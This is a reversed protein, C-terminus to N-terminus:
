GGTPPAAVAGAGAGERSDRLEVSLATAGAAALPRALVALLPAALVRLLVGGSGGHIADAFPDIAASLALEALLLPAFFAILLGFVPWRRGRTLEASRGLAQAPTLTEIVQVPAAVSWSALLTFGPAVLSTLGAIVGFDVLLALVFLPWVHSLAAGLGVEGPGGSVLVPGAEGELHALTAPIVLAKVTADGAVQFAFALM